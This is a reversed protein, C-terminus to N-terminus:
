QSPQPGVEKPHKLDLTGQDTALFQPGVQRVKNTAPDYPRDPQLQKPQVPTIEPPAIVATKQQPLTADDTKPKQTEITTISSEPQVLSQQQPAYGEPKVRTDIVTDPTASMPTSCGNRQMDDLLRRRELGADDIRSVSLEREDMLSALDDRMREMADHMDDCAAENDSGLITLSSDSTCGQNRMDSKLRRIAMNQQVISRSLQRTEANAGVFETTDAYRVHLEDCIANAQALVPTAALLSLLLSSYFKKGRNVNHEEFLPKIEVSFIGHQKVVYGDFCASQSLNKATLDSFM